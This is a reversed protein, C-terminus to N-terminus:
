QVEFAGINVILNVIRPYGFGRQDYPVTEAVDADSDLYLIDLALLANSGANITPSGTGLAHTQTLGGNNALPQLLPDASTIAAGCTTGPFQLNNGSDTIQLSRSCRGDIKSTAHLRRRLKRNVCHM